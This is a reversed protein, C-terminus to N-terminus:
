PGEECHSELYVWLIYNADSLGLRDSNTSRTETVQVKVMECQESKRWIAGDNTYELRYDKLRERSLLRRPREIPQTGFVCPCLFEQDTM